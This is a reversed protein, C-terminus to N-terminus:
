APWCKKCIGTLIVEREDATLNPFADQVSMGNMYDTYNKAPVIVSSAKGCFPCKNTITITESM